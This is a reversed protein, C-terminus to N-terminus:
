RNEVNQVEIERGVVQKLRKSLHENCNFGGAFLVAKVTKTTAKIQNQVLTQIERIVLYRVAM